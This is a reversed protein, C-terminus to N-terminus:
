REISNLYTLTLTKCDTLEQIREDKFQLKQQLVAQERAFELEQKTFDNKLRQIILNSDDFAAQLEKIKDKLELKDKDSENRKREYEVEIQSKLMSREQAFNELQKNLTESSNKQYDSLQLKADKLSTDLYEIQQKSMALEQYTEKSIQECQAQIQKIHDQLNEIEEEHNEQEEKLQDEHEESLQDYKIKSKRVEESLRLDLRQREQEYLDKMQALDQEKGEIMFDFTEQYKSQAESVEDELKDIKSKYHTEISEVLSLKETEIQRSAEESNAKSHTLEDIQERLIANENNLDSLQVKHDLIIDNNEQGLREVQESLRQKTESFKSEM